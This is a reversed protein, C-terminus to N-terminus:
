GYFNHGIGRRKYLALFRHPERTTSKYTGIFASAQRVYVSYRYAQTGYRLTAKRELKLEKHQAECSQDM